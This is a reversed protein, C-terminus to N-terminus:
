LMRRVQGYEPRVSLNRLLRLSAWIVELKQDTVLDSLRGCLVSPKVQRSFADEKLLWAVLDAAGFGANEMSFGFMLGVLKDCLYMPLLTLSAADLNKITGQETSVAGNTLVPVWVGKVALELDGTIKAAMLKTANEVSLPPTVSESRESVSKEPTSPENAELLEDDVSEPTSTIVGLGGLHKNVNHSLLTDIDSSAHHGDMAMEPEENEGVGKAEEGGLVVGAQSASDNPDVWIFSAESTMGAGVCRLWIRRTGRAVFGCM